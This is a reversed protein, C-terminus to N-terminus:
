SQTPVGQINIAKILFDQNIRPIETEYSCSLGIGRIFVGAPVIDGNIQLDQGSISPNRIGSFELEDVISIFVSKILHYLMLVEFVNDSTIVIHYQVNFMRNYYHTILGNEKDITLPVYGQDFGIGNGGTQESPMTIHITPLGARQADFLLRTQVERPHDKGRMIVDVAEKYFDYKGFSNGSMIIYLLSKEKDTSNEYDKKVVSLCTSILQSIQIEPIVM